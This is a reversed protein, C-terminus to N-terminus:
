SSRTPRSFSPPVGSPSSESGRDASVAAWLWGNL